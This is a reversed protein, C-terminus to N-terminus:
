IFSLNIDYVKFVLGSVFGYVHRVILTRGMWTVPCDIFILVFFVCYKMEFKLMTNFASRGSYLRILLMACYKCVWSLLQIINVEIFDVVLIGSPVTSLQNLKVLWLCLSITETGCEFICSGITRLYIDFAIFHESNPNEIHGVKFLDAFSM